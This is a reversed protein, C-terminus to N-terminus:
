LFMANDLERKQGGFRYLVFTNNSNFWYGAEANVDAGEVRM